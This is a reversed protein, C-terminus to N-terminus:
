QACTFREELESVSPWCRVEVAKPVQEGGQQEYIDALFELADVAPLQAGETPAPNDLDMTEPPAAPGPITYMRVFPALEVLPTKTYDLVGRLYNWASPNNPALAIKEKALRDVGAREASRARVWLAYM